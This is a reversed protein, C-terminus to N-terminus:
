YHSPNKIWNLIPATSSRWFFYLSRTRRCDMNNESFQFQLWVQFCSWLSQLRGERWCWHVIWSCVCRGASQHEGLELSLHDHVQEERDRSRSWGDRAHLLLHQTSFRSNAPFMAATSIFHIRIPLNYDATAYFVISNLTKNKTRAEITSSLRM